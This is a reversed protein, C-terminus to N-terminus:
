FDRRELNLTALYLMLASLPTTIALGIWPVGNGRFYDEGSMVRFIGFRAFDSSVQECLGIVIAAGLAILAPRWPDTWFTSLLFSLSFFVSGAVFLLGGHVLAPGIGYHEGVAPSVAVIVLSPVLAMIALQALGTAARIVILRRRSVPLSLTFLTADRTTQSLIGIGGLIVAFTTWSSSLNQRFWESWIYGRYERSLAAIELIRRGFDSNTDITAPLVPSLASVQRYTAVLSLASLTLLILGITFRWRSERWSRYWLM